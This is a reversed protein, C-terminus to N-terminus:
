FPIDVDTAAVSGYPTAASPRAALKKLARPKVKGDRVDQVPVVQCVSLRTRVDGDRTEYEEEQLNVGVYRGTFMDFRDADSAAMADFGPNSASIAELRGKTMSLASSKYSMFFHHAYPHELGWADSYYGAHEGEAIDYVVEAYNKEPKFEASTITVVYGGAPLKEFGGNDSSAEVTGWSIKPM